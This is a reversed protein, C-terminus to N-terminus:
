IDAKTFGYSREKEQKLLKKGKRSTMCVMGNTLIVENNAHNICDIKNKAILYSRHIRCFSDDLEKEITTLNGRFELMRKETHLIIRHNANATEFCVIEQIPIQYTTDVIRITYYSENGRNEKLILTNIDDLCERINQGMKGVEEKVLYSMAELRYKFTEFMLEEHTTVFIIFGRTDIKRIEKALSFGDYADSKLDVDFFYIARQNSNKRTEIIELPNTTACVVEMDYGQILISNNVITNLLKIINEDDDCIYVPVM